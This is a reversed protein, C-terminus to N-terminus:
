TGTGALSVAQPSGGGDDNVNLTASRAGLGTPAFTVNITCHGGAPVSGGCNNTQAFDSGNPGTIAISSVSLASKGLNTLRVPFPSSTTGVAQDGFNLGIPSLKVVTGTGSLDVSRPSGVADYAVLLKGQQPGPATPAFAVQVQCSQAPYITPPCNNTQAFSGKTSFGSFTIPASGTNTVTDMQPTSTTGILQTPFSLSSPALSITLTVGTGGLPVIQPSGVGQYNLILYASKAGDSKPTFTVQVQCSGGAPLSAGCNNAVSFTAANPGELGVKGIKLVTALANTLTITQPPSPVQLQQNGYALITPSVSAVTQLFVSTGTTLPFVFDLRGDNNFDGTTLGVRYASGPVMYSLPSAFTGDGNGLYVNVTSSSSFSLIAVDLKGDGNFDGVAMNNGSVDTNTCPGATFTGDGNGFLTCIGDTVLDLKGDGNLDAAFIATSNNPTSYRTPTQFTGDGNGLAVWVGGAGGKDTPTGALALDLKGDGNFDGLAAGAGGINDFGQSQNFNGLGDALYIVTEPIPYAPVSGTTVLDPFGDGNIDGSAAAVYGYFDGSGSQTFTGDGKGLLVYGDPSDNGDGNFTSFALDLKGDANFDAVLLSVPSGIDQPGVTHIPAGFTGNGNGPYVDVTDNNGDNGAIALDLKGDGNFDGAAVASLASIQHHPTFPTSSLSVRIPFYVLNSSGGGPAPNVVTVAVTAAKAVDAANIAAQLETSSVFTTSRPSGNWKVSAGSVFGTGNVTLSFAPSGPQASEPVLPANILPVPNSQAFLAANAFVLILGLCRLSNM